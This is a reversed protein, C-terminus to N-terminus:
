FFKWYIQFRYLWTSSYREQFLSYISWSKWMREHILELVIIDYICRQEMLLSHTPILHNQMSNSTVIM